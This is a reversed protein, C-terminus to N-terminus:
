SLPRRLLQYIAMATYKKNLNFESGLNLLRKLQNMNDLLQLPYRHIDGEGVTKKTIRIAQEKIVNHLYTLCVNSFTRWSAEDAISKQYLKQFAAGDSSAIAATIHEEVAQTSSPARWIISHCRSRLVAPLQYINNSVLMIYSSAPAEEFIKLLSNIGNIHLANAQAIIAVKVASTHQLFQRLKQLKDKDVEDPGFYLFSAHGALIQTRLMHKALDHLIAEAVEQNQKTELLLLHPFCQTDWLRRLHSILNSQDSIIM